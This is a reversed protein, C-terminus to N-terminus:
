LVGSTPTEGDSWQNDLDLLDDDPDREAREHAADRANLTILDLLGIGDWVRQTHGAIRRRTSRCGREELVAAFARASLRAQRSVGNEDAWEDYERRLEKALAWLDPHLHCRDALFDGIPDQDARYAATADTVTGPVQLGDHQWALCGQVAWTLIASRADPDHALHAKLTDDREDAEVTHEFPIRLIRRWIADDGHRVKPAHNAVLWLKFAPRYEFEAQYLERATITDGGTLSKVLGEAIRKGDEIENSIVLRAGTLRAIDTRPGRDDTRTLFTDFNTRRHYDGITATLAEAFTSKGAQTPGHVFFLVEETTQGTLTYGAARALFAALENDGRTASALFTDWRDNTADPRYTVPALKTILQTPDHAGLEGTRLDITGNEVNLAWPDTDLEDPQVPIGPETSALYLAARVANAKQSALVWRLHQDREKGELDLAEALLQDIVSKMAREAEGDVDREWRRGTWHLWRKWQPVYRFREGQLAVFRRANGLETRLVAPGDDNDDAAATDGEQGDEGHSSDAHHTPSTHRREIRGEEAALQRAAATYNGHHHITTYLAFPTYQGAPIESNTTYIQTGGDPYATAGTVGKPPPGPRTYHRAGAHDTHHLTWGAAELLQGPDATHNYRDGPRESIEPEEHPPTDNPVLRVSEGDDLEVSGTDPPDLHTALQDPSWRRDPHWDVLRVPRPPTHKHNHTAPLRMIRAADHVNDITWGQAEATRAWWGAWKELLDPDPPIPAPHHWWAHLGGGTEIIATPPLPFMGLLAHAAELTPPRGATDAHGPGAIDIDLWLGPLLAVDTDGGRRGGSLKEHRLGVGFWVDGEIRTAHDSADDWDGAPFWATALGGAPARHCITLWGDDPRCDPYLAELWAWITAQRDEGDDDHDEHHNNPAAPGTRRDAM